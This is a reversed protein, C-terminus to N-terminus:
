GALKLHSNGPFLSVRSSMTLNLPLPNELGGATAINLDSCPVTHANLNLYRSRLFHTNRTLGKAQMIKKNVAMMEKAPGGM